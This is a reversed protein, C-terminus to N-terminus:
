GSGEPDVLLGTVGDVIADVAGGSRGGIAARGALGAEAFVIGFGEWDTGDLSRNPMVFLDALEYAAWKTLDDVAGLFHVRNAVGLDRALEALREREPGDGGIVYQLEPFRASLEAVSRLVLDFGKRTVLRGISVVIPATTQPSLALENRLMAARNRVAADAPRPGAAPPVAVPPVPLDFLRHALDATSRSCAIVRAAGAFDRRRWEPLRGYLPLLLEKGYAFLHYPVGARRCADCWFHTATDWIGLLVRRSGNPVAPLDAILRGAYGRLALFYAGTHVRRVVSVADGLREGLKREPPPALPRLRYAHEWTSGNVAVPTLVTVDALPSLSQAVNHLYDAVGGCMPRFHTTALVVTRSAKL